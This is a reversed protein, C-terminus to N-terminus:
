YDSMNSYIVDIVTYFGSGRTIQLRIHNSNGFVAYLLEVTSGFDVKSFFSKLFREPWKATRETEVTNSTKGDM